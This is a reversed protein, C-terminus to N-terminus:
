LLSDYLAKKFVHNRVFGKVTEFPIDTKLVEFGKSFGFCIFFGSTNQGFLFRVCRRFSSEQLGIVLFHKSFFFCFYFVFISNKESAFVEFGGKNNQARLSFASDLALWRLALLAFQFGSAFVVGIEREAKWFWM